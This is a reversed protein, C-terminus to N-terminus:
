RARWSAALLKQSGIDVFGGASAGPGQHDEIAGGQRPIEQLGLEEADLLADGGPHFSARPAELASVSASEEQVLDGLHGRFHLALEQSDQLLLPDEAQPPRVARGASTLVTAAM